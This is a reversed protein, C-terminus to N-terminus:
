RSWCLWAQINLWALTIAEFHACDSRDLEHSDV